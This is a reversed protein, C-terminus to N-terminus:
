TSENEVDDSGGGRVRRLWAKAKAGSTFKPSRLFAWGGVGKPASLHAIGCRCDAMGAFSLLRDLFSFLIPIFHYDLLHLPLIFCAHSALLNTNTYLSPSDSFMFFRTLATSESQNVLPSTSGILGQALEQLAVLSPSSPPISVFWFPTPVFGNEPSCLTFHGPFFLTRRGPFYALHLAV